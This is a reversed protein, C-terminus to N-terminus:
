FPVRSIIIANCTTSTVPVNYFAASSGSATFGCLQFAAIPYLPLGPPPTYDIFIDYVDPPLSGLTIDAGTPINFNFIEGSTKSVLKATFLIVTTGNSVKFNLLAPLTVPALAYNYFLNKTINRDQDRINKLRSINDYQYYTIKNNADNMSTIGALPSYTYSSMVAGVPYIRLEDIFGSGAVSATIAGTFQLQKYTWGNRVTGTITNSQSGATVTVAAGAKYWYSLIYNTGPVLGTRQVQGTSLNYCYNGTPSSIDATKAVAYSFNGTTGAIEFSTYAVQSVSTNTVQAVPFINNYGWLYAVTIGISSTLEAPNGSLFKYIREDKYRNDKVLSSGTVNVTANSFISSSAALSIVQSKSLYVNSFPSASYDYKYFAANLLQNNRWSTVEIPTVMNQDQLELIPKLEADANTKAYDHATKFANVSNTFNIKQYNVYTVRANTFCQLNNLYAATLCSAAGSCGTRAANYTSQCSLCNSNYSTIGDQIADCAAVRFDATYKQKTELQEGKSNIAAVRTLQNHFASEYYSTKVTTTGGIGPSYLTETSQSQIKKATVLSYNTALLQVGGGVLNRTLVVFGPTAKTGNVYVPVYGIEKLKQGAENYYEESKLEGRMYNFPLPAFPYNPANADCGTTTLDKIVVQGNPLPWPSDGYYNYTTYGNGTQSVKVSSYGIHYGQTAAMPRISCPSKFYTANPIALCGNSSLSPTFGNTTWNGINKILDNRVIGVYVPRSYLIGTSKGNSLYNYSTTINGSTVPDNHTISAIRLGGVVVENTVTAYQWQRINLDAGGTLAPLSNSPFSITAQYTGPPLTFTKNFTSSVAILWPGNGQEVNSSNKISLTPYWSTSNNAVVVEVPENGTITFLSTQTIAPQGPLHVILHLLSGLEYNQYNSTVSNPEFNFSTSGGTPYTINQLAGGRMAPWSADRNAGPVTKISTGDNITYTPILSQNNTVGNYFGWHDIGFSLRRPAQEGFYTFQHPPMKITADCSVEQVSNLKLRQKDSTLHYSAFGSLGMYGTLMSSNDTFYSYTFNFNKCFGASDTVQIAGLSKANTNVNDVLSAAFDSLDTRTAGPVFNVYGNPFIVQSLRVGQVLNKVLNYEYPSSGSTVPDVPFMSLTFFGYNEPQYVLKINFQNDPSAIKNLYWSSIVTGTSLGNQATVPNTIEVPAAGTIGPSNGFFYQIGDPTTIVFSQISKNGAPSYDAVIKLDEQPVIVPTRDDRFYFKGSYGGFNFFFLDPEGDKYGNAFAQWDQKGSLYLYNNYGYDSFYGNTETAGANTGKEDPAGQVSRTIVGGANLSWGAGVWGSPEQVKLGSAHYGLSVPLQLIGAKVTYVPISIQPIGTHFNVPIDGYKGLSAATPSSISVDKYPGSQSFVHQMFCCLILLLVVQQM